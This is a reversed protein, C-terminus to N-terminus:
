KQKVWKVADAVVTRGSNKNNLEVRSTDASFYFSGLSNWGTEASKLAVVVEDQGEDHDVTFHYEDPIEPMGGGPGGGGRGGQGGGMRIGMRATMPNIYAMVEYYGPDQIITRWEAVQTGDGSKVYLASRVFDGYFGSQIIPTWNQPPRWMQMAVYPVDDTPKNINFWRVLRSDAAKGTTSFGPDENDIVIEGEGAMTLLMPIPRMGEFPTYGKVKEVEPFPFSVSVPLNTSVMTNVSMGRPQEDLVYGIQLAENPPMILFKETNADRGALAFSSGGGRMGFGGGRGGGMGGRGARLTIQLLGSTESPNSVDFLLQYRTYDGQQVEIVRVNGVLFAPLQRGSYWENAFEDMDYGFRELFNERFTSYDYVQHKNRQLEGLLFPMFEESGAIAELYTFFYRGKADIVQRLNYNDLDSALLDKFSKKQLDVNAQESVNLGSIGMGGWGGMMGSEGTNSIYSELATNLIPYEKSGVYNVYTFFHPFVSYRKENDLQVSRSGANFRFRFDDTGPIFNTSLFNNLVRLQIETESLSEQSQKLRKEMMKYSQAFGAQSLMTGMEPVLLMEPQVFERHKVWLRSYSYFQAPVEVIRLRPYAYSLGLRRELDQKMDGVFRPLTDAVSDLVASFYDHGKLINLEFDVDETNLTRSEYPGIILTLGTLQNEPVFRWYDGEQEAPGQMIPQLGSASKVKANFTTFNWVPLVSLNSGHLVGPTPYWASEPTVIVYNPEVIAFRKKISVIFDPGWKEDAQEKKIDLYCVREDVSGSYDMQLRITDGPLLPGPFKLLLLHEKQEFTSKAGNIELSNIKFGPNLNLVTNEIPNLTANSLQMAATIALKDGKHDVTLDCQDLSLVPLNDHQDNLAILDARYKQDASATSTYYLIGAGALIGFTFTMLWTTASLVRSQPLRKLLLISASIFSLGLMLYILRQLVLRGEYGFGTVDSHVMPILNGIFDFVYDGHAKGFFLILGTYGLLIVLAIAQNKVLSMVLFSLGLVFILSPITILLPYYLYALWDIAVNQSVLNIILALILVLLNLVLFVGLIGITKGWVYSWNSMSRTYIVESTDLKKDRKLFDLALFMAIFTQSISLFLINFYPINSAIGIVGWNGSSEGMMALNMVLLFLLVLGSFIRFFWSRFLILMEFWAITLITRITKM